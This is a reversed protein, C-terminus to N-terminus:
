RLSATDLLSAAVHLPTNGYSTDKETLLYRINKMSGGQRMFQLLLRLCESSYKVALHVCNSGELSRLDCSFIDIMRYNNPLVLSTKDALVQNVKEEIKDNNLLYKIIRKVISVQNSIIALQLTTVEIKVKKTLEIFSTRSIKKNLDFASCLSTNESIILPYLFKTQVIFEPETEFMLFLTDEVGSIIEHALQFDIDRGSVPEILM